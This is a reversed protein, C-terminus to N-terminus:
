NGSSTRFYNSKPGHFASDQLSVRELVMKEVDEFGIPRNRIMQTLVVFLAIFSVALALLALNGGTDLM